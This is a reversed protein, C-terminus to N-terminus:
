TLLKGYLSFNNARTVEVDVFQGFLTADGAFNIVRNNRTRGMLYADDRTKGEVLVNYRRGVLKKNNEIIIENLANLMRDFRAHKVTEDIQNPMKAAPTGQRPSYIFTFASDYQVTKILDILDDM